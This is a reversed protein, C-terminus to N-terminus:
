SARGHAIKKPYLGRRSLSDYLVHSGIRLLYQSHSPKDEKRVVITHHSKLLARIKVISSKDVSSVRVYKGRLYSADEMSGDAYLYGLAYAMEPGWKKFFGEDVSYKLGM